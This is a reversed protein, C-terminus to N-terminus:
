VNEEPHDSIEASFLKEVILAHTDFLATKLKQFGIADQHTLQLLGNSGMYSELEDKILELLPKELPCDDLPDAARFQVISVDGIKLALFGESIYEKVAEEVQADLWEDLEPPPETAGWFKGM